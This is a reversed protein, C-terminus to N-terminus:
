IASKKFIVHEFISANVASMWNCISVNSNYRRDTIISVTVFPNFGSASIFSLPIGHIPAIGFFHPIILPFYIRLYTCFGIRSSSPTIVHKRSPSTVRRLLRRSSPKVIASLSIPYWPISTPSKTTCPMSPNAPAIPMESERPFADGTNFTNSVACFLLYIM